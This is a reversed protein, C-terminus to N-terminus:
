AGTEDAVRIFIFQTKGDRKIYLQIYEPKQSLVEEMRGKFGDLDKVAQENVDVIIDNVSLGSLGAPGADEVRSVWVGEIDFDLNDSLIIDQTIEKVRLGLMENFYEEAMFLSKPASKLVISIEKVKKNRYITIKYPGEPLSRIYNRFIELTSKEDNPIDFKGIRTIIDGMELGAEDAPSKPVVSNVIIGNIGNLEWYDAMDDTLIQMRIGLWSKGSGTFQMELIPPEDILPHFSLAPLLQKIEASTRDDFQFGRNFYQGGGMTVGVAKGHRNLVLGGASLVNLDSTTIWKKFPKELVANINTKLVIPEYDYRGNLHELLYIEDGIRSVYTTDFIVPSPLKEFDTIQIFALSLEQDKGLLKAKLKDNKNFSVTIDEPPKELFAFSQNNGMIDINAPFLEDSTMVLGNSNVLIGTIKQKIRSQDKIEGREYQSQYYEILCISKQTEPISEPWQMYVIGFFLYISIIFFKM